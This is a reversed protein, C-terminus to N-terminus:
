EDNTKYSLVITDYFKLNISTANPFITVSSYTDDKYYQVKYRKIEDLTFYDLLSEGISIGEIEFDRIDEAKTLSQLSFILVLVAIFVRM